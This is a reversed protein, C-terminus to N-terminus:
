TFAARVNECKIPIFPHKENIIQEADKPKDDALLKAAEFLINAKKDQM